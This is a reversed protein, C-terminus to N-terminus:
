EYMKPLLFDGLEKHVKAIFYEQLKMKAMKKKRKQNPEFHFTSNRYNKLNEVFSEKENLLVDIRTDKFGLKIYGDIVTHLGAIWYDFYTCLESSDWRSLSYNNNRINEKLQQEYLLRM